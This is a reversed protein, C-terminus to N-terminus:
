FSLLPWVRQGAADRHSSPDQGGTPLLIEYARGRQGEPGKPQVTLRTTQGRVRLEDIRVQDDESVLRQVAADAPSPALRAPGGACGALAVLTGVVFLTKM